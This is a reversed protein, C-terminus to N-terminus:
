FESKIAKFKLSIIALMYVKPISFTFLYFGV